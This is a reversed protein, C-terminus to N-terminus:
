AVCGKVFAELLTLGADGSKEPHFQVAATAGRAIACAFEIGHDTTAAVFGAAADATPVYSHDFYAYSGDDFAAFVGDGRAHPSLRVRNWGIHPVKVSAPLRVIRGPVVGLGAAGPSEDSGEFLIQLGL